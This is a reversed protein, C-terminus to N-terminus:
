SEVLVLEQEKPLVADRAVCEGRRIRVRRPAEFGLRIQGHHIELVTIVVEEGIHVKEGKKRAILLM